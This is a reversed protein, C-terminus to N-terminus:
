GDTEGGDVVTVGDNTALEGTGKIVCRGDVERCGGCVCDGVRTPVPEAVCGEAVTVDDWIGM